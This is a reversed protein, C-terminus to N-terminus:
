QIIIAVVISDADHEMDALRFFPVAFSLDISAEPAMCYGLNEDVVEVTCSM